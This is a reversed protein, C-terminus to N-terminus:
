ADNGGSQAIQGQMSGGQSIQSEASGAQVIQGAPQYYIPFSAFGPDVFCVAHSLGGGYLNAVMFKEQITTSDLECVAQMLGGLLLSGFGPASVDACRGQMLAGGLLVAVAPAGTDAGVGFVLGSGIGNAYAQVRM